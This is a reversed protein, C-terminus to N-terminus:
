VSNQYRIWMLNDFVSILNWELRDIISPIFEFWCASESANMSLCPFLIWSIARPLPIDVALHGLKKNMKTWTDALKVIHKGNVVFVNSKVGAPRPNWASSPSLKKAPHPQIRGFHQLTGLSCVWVSFSHTPHAFLHRFPIRFSTHERVFNTLIVLM